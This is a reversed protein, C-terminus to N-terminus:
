SFVEIQINGVGGAITVAWVVWIRLTGTYTSPTVLGGSVHLDDPGGGVGIQAVAPGETALYISLPIDTTGVGVAQASQVPVFIPFNAGAPGGPVGGAKTVFEPRLIRILEDPRTQTTM